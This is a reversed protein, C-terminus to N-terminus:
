FTILVSVCPSYRAGRPEPIQERQDRAETLSCARNGSNWDQLRSNLAVEQTQVPRTECLNLTMTTSEQEEESDPGWLSLSAGRYEM